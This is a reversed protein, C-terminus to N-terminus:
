SSDGGGNTGLQGGVSGAGVRLFHGHVCQVSGTQEVAGGGGDVGGGGGGCVQVLAKPLRSGGGVRVSAAARGGLPRHAQARRPAAAEHRRGQGEVTGGLVPM